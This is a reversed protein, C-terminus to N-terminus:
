DRLYTYGDLGARLEGILENRADEDADLGSVKVRLKELLDDADFQVQRLVDRVSDGPLPEHIAYTGDDNLAVHVSDTDGFLNHIDGLTEQYAGVLFIGLTYHEGARPLHLPLSTEVGEADVYHDIRGDSDCTIDLVVGRRTPMEDLRQIPVIPFIQDIAWVDPVSQFVSFNTFYKSALKDNLEDLLARHSKVGAKLQARVARCIGYYLREVHARQALDLVGHTFMEQAEAMWHVAEHYIEVANRTTLGELSSWLDHLLPPEDEGPPDLAIEDANCEVGTVDVLLCAHHASMARGAETMIAPHAIGQKECVDWLAHVINNAYERPSYNMSCYSRAGSGEYDIALGGGVDVCRIPAGLRHLEAFVRGCERMARQIDRINSVQSGMHFHLLELCSSLGAEALRDLARLLQESSLGFKSKEGGTNQWNGAAIAALRVRVGLLPKVGLARAQEIVLELESPKEIVIYVRHGLRQGLLALRIYDRDKYGNCIVVGQPASLALVALLEPKSGAELGVGHGDGGHAAGALIAEVVRRQQNVKIPYVATYAGQYDDTARAQHFAEYLTRVRDRLIDAFRVLLPFHRGGARLDVALDALDIEGAAQDGRPRVLLHGRASVDFYGDGWREISYLERAQQIDWDTM